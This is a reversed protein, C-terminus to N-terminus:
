RRLLLDFLDDIVALVQANAAYAQELVTLAALENDINVGVAAIESSRITSYRAARTALDIEANESATFLLSTVEAVLDTSSRFGGVGTAAPPANAATFAALLAVPIANDGAVGEAAAGMGDRVRWVEGGAAPDVAPNLSLRGALGVTGTFAAGGDTFLGPDGPVLTPDVNIEDDFRDILDAALSDLTAQLDVSIVDRVEFLAALSGGELAAYSSIGSPTADVGGVTVGSLTGVGALYDQDATIVTAQTFDFSVGSPDLLPFGGTTFLKLSGNDQREVIVPVIGAIQDVIAKRAALAETADIGAATNRAIETESDELDALAANLASIQKAIEADADERMKLLDDQASNFFDVISQADTVVNNHAATSEPSDAAQRLSTEFAEYLDFLSGPEGVDGIMRDIVAYADTVTTQRALAAEARRRDNTINDVTVLDVSAVRVGGGGGAGLSVSSLEAVRRSYGDTSANAINGATVDLLVSTANVGSLAKNIATSLTM